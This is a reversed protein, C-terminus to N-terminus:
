HKKNKKVKKPARNKRKKINEDKIVKKRAKKEELTEDKPRTYKILKEAIEKARASEAEKKESDVGETNETEASEVANSSGAENSQVGSAGVEVSGSENGALVEENNEGVAQALLAPQRAVSLDPNLGVVTMYNVETRIGAKALAIEREVDQIESLRKAITVEMFINEEMEEEPTLRFDNRESYKKSLQDLCADMNDEKISPDVIFFFLDIITMAPIGKKRFFISVNRIDKRLFRFASMQNSEIAQSVDIVYVKGKYFLMNYESLDAHVLKCENHLKWMMVVVDRYVRRWENNSLDVDKLKPAPNIGKGIFDMVIVHSRWEHVKPVNLNQKYMRQLNRAEKESWTKIMKRPNTSLGKRFRFEGEVYQKRNKFVLIATMFIKIAVGETENNDYKWGHFVNAEKGKSISFNLEFFIGRNIMKAIVVHTRRDLVQEM